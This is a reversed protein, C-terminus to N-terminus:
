IESFVNCLLTISKIQCICAKWNENRWSQTLYVTPWRCSSSLRSRPVCVTTEFQPFNILQQWCNWQSFDECWGVGWPSHSPHVACAPHLWVVWSRATWYHICVQYRCSGKGLWRIRRNLTLHLSSYVVLSIYCPTWVSILLVHECFICRWRKVNGTMYVHSCLVRHISPSLM